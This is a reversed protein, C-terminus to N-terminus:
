SYSGGPISQCYGSMKKTCRTEISLIHEARWYVVLSCVFLSFTLLLAIAFLGDVRSRLAEREIGHDQVEREDYSEENTALLYEHDQEEGGKDPKLAGLLNM